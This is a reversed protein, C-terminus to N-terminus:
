WDEVFGELEAKDLRPQVNDPFDEWGDSKYRGCDMVAWLAIQKLRGM